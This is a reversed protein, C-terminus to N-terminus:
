SLSGAGVCRVKKARRREIGFDPQASAVGARCPNRRGHEGTFAQRGRRGGTGYRHEAGPIRGRGHRHSGQGGESWSGHELAKFSEGGMRRDVTEAVYQAPGHGVQQYRHIGMDHGHLFEAVVPEYIGEDRQGVDDEEVAHIRGKEPVVHELLVALAICQAGAIEGHQERRGPEGHDDDQEGGPDRRQDGDGSGQSGVDLQGGGDQRQVGQVGNGERPEPTLALGRREGGELQHLDHDFQASVAIEDDHEVHPQLANQDAVDGTGPDNEEDQRADGQPM